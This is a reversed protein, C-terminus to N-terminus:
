IYLLIKKVKLAGTGIRRRSSYHRSVYMVLQAFLVFIQAIHMTSMLQPILGIMRHAFSIM